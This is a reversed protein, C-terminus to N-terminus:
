LCHTRLVGRSECLELFQCMGLVRRARLAVRLISRNRFERPTRQMQQRKAFRKRIVANVMSEALCPSIRDSARSAQAARTIPYSVAIDGRPHLPANRVVQTQTLSM